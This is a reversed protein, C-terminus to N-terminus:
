ASKLRRWAFVMSVGGLLSWIIITAPEPVASSPPTYFFGGSFEAQTNGQHEVPFQSLAQYGGPVNAKAFFQLNASFSQGQNTDWVYDSRGTLGVSSAQVWSGSGTITIELRICLSKYNIQNNHDFWSTVGEWVATNGAIGSYTLNHPTGDLTASTSVLDWAGWYINTFASSDFNSYSYNIGNPYVAGNGIMALDNGGPAPYTPGQIAAGAVAVLSLVLGFVILGCIWKSAM